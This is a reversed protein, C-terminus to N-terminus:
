VDDSHARNNSILSTQLEIHEKLWKRRPKKVGPKYWFKSSDDTVNGDFEYFVTVPCNDEIYRNLMKKEDNNILDEDRLYRVVACLGFGSVQRKKYFAEVLELLEKINRINEM